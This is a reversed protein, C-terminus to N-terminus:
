KTELIEIQSLDDLWIRYYKYKEGDNYGITLNLLTVSSLNLVFM